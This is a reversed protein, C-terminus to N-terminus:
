TAATRADIGFRFISAIINKMSQFYILPSRIRLVKELTLATTGQALRGSQTLASRM